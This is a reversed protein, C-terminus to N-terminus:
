HHRRGPPEARDITAALVLGPKPLVATPLKFYVCALQWALITLAIGLPPLLIPKMQEFRRADLM